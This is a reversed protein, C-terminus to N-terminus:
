IRERSNLMYTVVVKIPDSEIFNVFIRTFLLKGNKFTNKPNISCMNPYQYIKINREIKKLKLLMYDTPIAINYNSSSARYLGEGIKGHIRKWPVEVLLLCFILFM